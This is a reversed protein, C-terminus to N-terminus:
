RFLFLCFFSLSVTKRGDTRENPQKRTRENTHNNRGHVRAIDNDTDGTTATTSLPSGTSCSALLAIWPFTSVVLKPKKPDQRSKSRNLLVSPVSVSLMTRFLLLACPFRYTLGRTRSWFSENCHGFLRFVVLSGRGCREDLGKDDDNDDNDDDDGNDEDM